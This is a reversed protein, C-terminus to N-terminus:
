VESLWIPTEPIIKTETIDLWAQYWTSLEAKQTNSLRSYWLEGRNIYPFCIKERQNRLDSLVKHDEIEIQKDNDKTLIDDESLYYSRYNREFDELNEPEDVTVSPSNFEGVLAFSEVFGNENLIVQM